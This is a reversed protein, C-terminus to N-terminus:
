LNSCLLIVKLIKIFISVRYIIYYSILWSFIFRSEVIRFWNIFMFMMMIMMIKWGLIFCKKNNRFLVVSWCCELKRFCIRFWLRFFVFFFICCNCVRCEVIICMFLCLVFVSIMSALLRLRLLSILELIVIFVFIVFGKSFFIKLLCLGRCM